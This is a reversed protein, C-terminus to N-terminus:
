GPSSTGFNSKNSAASPRLLCAQNAEYGLVVATHSFPLILEGEEWREFWGSQLSLDHYRSKSSLHDSHISVIRSCLTKHWVSFDWNYAGYLHGWTFIRMANFVLNLWVDLLDNLQFSIRSHRIGVWITKTLRERYFPLLWIYLWMKQCYFARSLYM